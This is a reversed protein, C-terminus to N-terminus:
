VTLRKSFTQMIKQLLLCTYVRLPSSYYRRCAASRHKGSKPLLTVNRVGVRWPIGLEALAEEMARHIDKALARLPTIWLLQLGNKKRKKYDPNRNIYDILVALFVSYTKGFGTPANVIGSQGELYM